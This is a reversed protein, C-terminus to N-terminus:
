RNTDNKKTNGTDNQSNNSSVTRSDNKNHHKSYDRINIIMTIVAIMTEALRRPPSGQLEDFARPNAVNLARQLVLM